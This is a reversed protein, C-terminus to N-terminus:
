KVPLVYKSVKEYKELLPLAKNWFERSPTGPAKSQREAIFEDWVSPVVLAKARAQEEDSWKYVTAGGAQMISLGQADAKNVVEALHDIYTKGLDSIIDQIDKPLKNWTALSMAMFTTSYQGLGWDFVYPSVEYLKQTGIANFPYASSADVVGRQLAEYVSTTETFVGTAGFKECVKAVLGFVRVKKGRFDEFRNIRTKAHGWGAAIQCGAIYRIKNRIEFEEKFPPYTNYLEMQARAMTDPAYCAYPMSLVTCLPMEGPYVGGTILVVDIIGAAANKLQDMQAGLAGDYYMAGKVRGNTRREVEKFFDAAYMSTTMTATSFSNVRLNFTPAPTATPGPTTTPAAPRACGGVMLLICAIFVCAVLPMRLESLRKM